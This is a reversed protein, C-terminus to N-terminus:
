ANERNPFDESCLSNRDFDENIMIRVVDSTNWKVGDRDRYYNVLAALKLRQVSTLEVNM